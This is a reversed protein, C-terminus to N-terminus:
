NSLSALIDKAHKSTSYMSGFEKAQIKTKVQKKEPRKLSVNKTRLVNRRVLFKERMCSPWRCRWGSFEALNFINEIVDQRGLFLVVQGEICM